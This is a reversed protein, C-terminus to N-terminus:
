VVVVVCLIRLIVMSKQMLNSGLRLIGTCIVLNRTSENAGIWHDGGSFFFPDGNLSGDRGGGFQVWRYGANKAM